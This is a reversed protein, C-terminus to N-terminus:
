FNARAGLSGSVGTRFRRVAQADSDRGFTSVFADNTLNRISATVEFAEAVRKALTVDIQNRPQFYVDPLGGAGVQVIRPGIINYLIRARFGVEPDENAYDLSLNVIWPAQNNLPRRSNTLFGSDDFEVESLAVTLNAILSLDELQRAVFAFNKRAELEGGILNAGPSNQYTILGRSGNAVIVQEIPDEFRKAFVSAALVEQLTPFWEWRLDGNWIRSFELDPNGEEPFGGFYNVFAFPAIERLQPRAVTRSVAL